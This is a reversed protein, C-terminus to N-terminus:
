QWGLLEDSLKTWSTETFATIVVDAETLVEPSGVGVAKMGGRHAAEIGAVADEFVVCDAPNQHLAQAGLLFVEPDPKSKTTHTGDIIADFADLMDIRELILRANKSASGLAIGIGAKRLSDLFDRVGPLVEQPTMQNVYALYWENKRAAWQQKEEDSLTVGGWQLILELSEMRSVGKLQENQHETFDFGLENALRRWAKFHYVATDVIVGDLDFLCAKLAM